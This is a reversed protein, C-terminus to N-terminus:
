NEELPGYREEVLACYWELFAESDHDGADIEVLLSELETRPQHCLDAHCEKCLYEFTKDNRDWRDGYKDYERAASRALSSGCAICTVTERDRGSRSRWM